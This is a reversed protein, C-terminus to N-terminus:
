PDCMPDKRKHKVYGGYGGRCVSVYISSKTSINGSNDIFVTCICKIIQVVAAKQTQNSVSNFTKFHLLPLYTIKDVTKM